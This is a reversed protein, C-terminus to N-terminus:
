GWWSLTATGLAAPGAKETVWSVACLEVTAYVEVLVSSVNYKIKVAGLPEHKVLTVADTIPGM